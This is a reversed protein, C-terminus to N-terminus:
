WPLDGMPPVKEKLAYVGFGLSDSGLPAVFRGTRNLEVEEVARVVGQAAIDPEVAGLEEYSESYHETMRSRIFGPHICVVPVGKGYLDWALLKGMMNNACKSMHHGYSGGGKQSRLGISGGESTVIGLKCGPRLLKENNLASIISLPGLCCVRYMDVAASPNPSSLSDPILLGAIIYIRALPLSLSLLAPLIKAAPDPSLLDISSIIQLRESYSSKMTQLASSPKRCTAIVTSTTRSLLHSTIAHGLSGTAGVILTRSM